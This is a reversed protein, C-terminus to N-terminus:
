GRGSEFADPLPPVGLALRLAVLHQGESAMISTIPQLLRASGLQKHADYYRRVIAKELEIAFTLLAREDGAAGLGPVIREVDAVARPPEPRRGGLEAHLKALRDAHAREQGALLGLLEKAPADLGTVRGATEYAFAAVQEIEVLRELVTVDLRSQARAPAARALLAPATAAAAGAVLLARRTSSM